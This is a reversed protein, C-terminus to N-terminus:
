EELAAVLTALDFAYEGATTRRLVINIDPAAHRQQKEDNWGSGNPAAHDSIRMALREGHEDAPNELWFYTSGLSSHRWILTWGAAAVAAEVAQRAADLGARRALYDVQEAEEQRRRAQDAEALEEAETAAEEAFRFAAAAVLTHRRGGRGVIAALDDSEYGRAEAIAAAAYPRLRTSRLEEIYHSYSM